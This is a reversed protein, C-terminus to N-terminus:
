KIRWGGPPYLPAQGLWPQVRTVTGVYPDNVVFNRAYVTNKDSTFKVQVSDKMSGSAQSRIVPEGNSGCIIDATIVDPEIM